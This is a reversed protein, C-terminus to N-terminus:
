CCINILITGRLAWKFSKMKLPKAVVCDAGSERMSIIERSSSESTVVMIVGRFGQARINAITQPGTMGAMLHSVTVVDFMANTNGYAVEIKAKRVANVGESGSAACVVVHGEQSLLREHIHRVSGSEDVVLVKMHDKKAATVAVARSNDNSDQHASDQIAAAAAAALM